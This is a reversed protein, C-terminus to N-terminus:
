RSFKKIILDIQYLNAEYVACSFSYTMLKRSDLDWVHILMLGFDEAIGVDFFRRLDVDLVNAIM